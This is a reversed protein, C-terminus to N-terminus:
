KSFLNDIQEKLKNLNIKSINETKLYESICIHSIYLLDYSLFLYFGYDEDTGNFSLQKALSLLETSKKLYEFLVGVNQMVDDLLNDITKNNEESDEVGFIRLLDNKYLIERVINKDEQSIEDTPLFIDDNNYSCEYETNYKIANSNKIIETM